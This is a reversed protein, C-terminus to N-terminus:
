MITAMVVTAVMTGTRGMDKAMVAVMIAMSTATVTVTVMAMSGVMVGGPIVVGATPM